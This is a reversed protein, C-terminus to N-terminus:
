ILYYTAAFTLITVAVIALDSLNFRPEHMVAKVRFAKAEIEDMMPINKGM